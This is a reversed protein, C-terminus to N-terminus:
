KSIGAPSACKKVIKRCKQHVTEPQDTVVETVHMNWLKNHTEGAPAIELSNDNKM